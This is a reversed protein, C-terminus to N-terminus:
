QSVQARTLYTNYVHVHLLIMLCKVKEVRYQKCRYKGSCAFLCILIITNKKYINIIM